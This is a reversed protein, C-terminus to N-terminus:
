PVFEVRTVRAKNEYVLAFASREFARAYGDPLVLRMRHTWAEPGVTVTKERLDLKWARPDISIAALSLTHAVYLKSMRAEVWGRTQKKVEAVVAAALADRTIM